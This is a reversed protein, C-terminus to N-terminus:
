PRTLHGIKTMDEIQWKQADSLQRIQTPGERKKHERRKIMEISSERTQCVFDANKWPDNGADRVPISAEEQRFYALTLQKQGEGRGE